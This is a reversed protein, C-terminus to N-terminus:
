VMKVFGIRSLMAAEVPSTEGLLDKYYDTPKVYPYIPQTVDEFKTLEVSSIKGM